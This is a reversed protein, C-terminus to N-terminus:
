NPHHKAGGTYANRMRVELNHIDVRLSSSQQKSPAAKSSSTSAAMSQMAHPPNTAMRSPLTADFPLGGWVRIRGRRGVHAELNEM